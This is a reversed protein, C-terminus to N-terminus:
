VQERGQQMRIQPEVIPKTKDFLINSFDFSPVRGTKYARYSKGEEVFADEGLHKKVAARTSSPIPEFPDESMQLAILDDSIEYARYCPASLLTERGFLEIYPKGFFNTWHLEPHRVRLNKPNYWDPLEKNYIQAQVPEFLPLLRECLTMFNQFVIKNRAYVSDVSFIFYNFRVQQDKEWHMQYAVGHKGRKELLLTAEAYPYQASEPDDREDTWLRVLPSCDSPNYKIKLPECEGYVTPVFDQGAENIEKLVSKALEANQFDKLSSCSFSILDACYNM